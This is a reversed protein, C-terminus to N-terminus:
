EPRGRVPAWRCESWRPAHMTSDPYHRSHHWRLSGMAPFTFVPDKRDERWVWTYPPPEGERWRDPGPCAREQEAFALAARLAAIEDRAAAENAARIAPHLYPNGAHQLMSQELADIQAPSVACAGGGM